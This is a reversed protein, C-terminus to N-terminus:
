LVEKCHPCRPPHPRLGLRKHVVRVYSGLTDPTSKHGATLLQEVIEKATQGAKHMFRIKQQLSVAEPM